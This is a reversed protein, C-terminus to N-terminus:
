CTPFSVAIRAGGSASREIAVDGGARLATSRVIDLGLGSSGRGSRGREVARHDRIGPGDDEVTLTVSPGTVTLSVDLATGPPTHTIVNDILNDIVAILDRPPLAVFVARGARKLECPRKEDELMTWWFFFRDTIIADIDTLREFQGGAPNRSQDIIQDLVEQVRTVSSRIMEAEHRHKLTEAQLALATLPTRLGHSLDAASEREAKMLIEIRGVLENFSKGLVRLEKPGSPTVRAGLDGRSVRRAAGVLRDVPRTISRGLRKAIVVAVAPLALLAGLTIMTTHFLSDWQGSTDIAVVAWSDPEGAPALSRAAVRLPGCWSFSTGRDDAEAGRDILCRSPDGFVAAGRNLSVLAQAEPVQEKELANLLEPVKASREEAISAIMQVNVDALKDVDSIYSSRLYAVFPLAFLILCLATSVSALLAIRSRM